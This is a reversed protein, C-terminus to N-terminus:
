GGSGHCPRQDPKSWGGNAKTDPKETIESVHIQEQFNM